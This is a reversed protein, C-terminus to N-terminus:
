EGTYFRDKDIGQRKATSVSEAVCHSIGCGGDGSYAGDRRRRHLGELASLRQATPSESVFINGNSRQIVCSVVDLRERNSEVLSAFVPVGLYEIVLNCILLGCVPLETGPEALDCRVTKLKGGLQPFRERCAALYEGNIDLAWVTEVACPNIYELGNGGAAGLVVICAKGHALQEGTIRNLAQLQQVGDARMHEEYDVLRITEWPNGL